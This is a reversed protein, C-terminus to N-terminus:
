LIEAQKISEFLNDWYRKLRSRVMIHTSSGNIGAEFSQRKALLEELDKGILTKNGKPLRILAHFQSSYEKYSAFDEFQRGDMVIEGFYPNLWVVLPTESFFKALHVLGKLTDPMAQGGTVITHLFVKHGANTLLPLVGNEEIYAGLAVFSSAGNDVVAHADEPADMLSELLNDFKRPNINGDEMIQVTSVDFEKFGALTSNVPDTDYGRVTKGSQQLAQYLFAAVMSKGVGGKGQLIFHITAM